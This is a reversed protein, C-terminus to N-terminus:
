RSFNAWPHAGAGTTPLPGVDTVIPGYTDDADLSFNYTHGICTNGLVLNRECFGTQLGYTTEGTQGQCHNGQLRNGSACYLSLGIGTNGGIACDRILNGECLGESGSLYVGRGTNDMVRCKELVNRSCDGSEGLLYIGHGLNKTVACDTITNGECRNTLIIGHGLGACITSRAITNGRCFGNVSGALVVGGGSRSDSITCDAITNGDCQGYVGNLYVGIGNEAISCRAITNGTCRGAYAGRLDVGYVDNDRVTCDTVVNAECHGSQGFLRIGAVDNSVAVLREFRGGVGHEALVGSGFGRLIGNRVVVDRIPSNTAGDLYVGHKNPDRNGTLMFGMLDLTVGGATIVVGHDTSNLNGALRASCPQDLTEPIESILLDLRNGASLDYNDGNGWVINEAVYSGSGTLKLGAVRNSVITNGIARSGGGLAIGAGNSVTHCARVDVGATGKIGELGCGTVECERVLFEEAVALGYNKCGVVRVREVLGKTCGNVTMDLGNGNPACLTGNRVIANAGGSAAAIANWTTGMVAFGMLDLTVNSAAIYITGTVNGTLYYSGPETITVPLSIPQRPEVQELTKMTAAPPGPPTLSGQARANPMGAAWLTLGVAALRLSVERLVDHVVAHRGEAPDNLTTRVARTSANM